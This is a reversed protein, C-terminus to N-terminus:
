PAKKQAPRAARLEDLLQRIGEHGALNQNVVLCRGEAFYVVAASGIGGGLGGLGLAGPPGPGGPLAAGAMPQWSGPEVVRTIVEILNEAKPDSGVLDAVPYVRRMLKQDAEEANSVVLVGDDFYYGLGAQGRLLMRLATRAPVGKVHLTVKMEDPNADAVQPTNRDLLINLGTQRRLEDLAKTLPVDRLDLTVRTALKEEPWRGGGAEAVAAEGRAAPKVPVEQADAREALLSGVPTLLMGGLGVTFALAAVLAIAVFLKSLHMTRLVEQALLGAQSAILGGPVPRAAYATAATVAKVALGPSLGAADATAALAVAPATVGYRLLRRCLLARARALRGALTGEPWGLRRAAEHYRLGEVDCLLVAARYAAPLRELERDLLEALEARTDPPVAEPRAAQQEKRRRRVASSRAALATRRAVGYLWGAFLEPRRVASAKRAVVLWVAQFCDEVDHPAHLHRRCARLVLDGHRRVLEALAEPDREAAFRALLQGDSLGAQRLQGVLKGLHRRGGIM